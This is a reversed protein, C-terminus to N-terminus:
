FVELDDAGGGLDPAGAGAQAGERGDGLEDVRGGADAALGALDGALLPVVELGDRRDVVAVVLGELREVGLEPVQDAEVLPLDVAADLPEHALVLAHVAGVRAAELGARRGARDDLVRVADHVHVRGLADAAAVALRAAREVHRVERRLGPLHRLHVSQTSRTDTPRSGAHMLAQGVPQRWKPVFSSM